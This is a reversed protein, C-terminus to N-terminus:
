PPSAAPAPPVRFPNFLRDHWRVDPLPLGYTHQWHAYDRYIVVALKSVSNGLTSLSGNLAFLVRHPKETDHLQLFRKRKDDNEGPLRHLLGAGYLFAEFVERVTYGTLPWASGDLAGYFRQEEHRVWSPRIPCDM